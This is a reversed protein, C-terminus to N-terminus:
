GPGITAGPAEFGEDGRHALNAVVHVRPTARVATTDAVGGDVLSATATVPNIAAAFALAHRLIRPHPFQPSGRPSAIFILTLNSGRSAHSPTFQFERAHRPQWGHSSTNM